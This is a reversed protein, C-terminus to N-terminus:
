KGNGVVMRLTFFSISGAEHKIKLDYIKQVYFMETSTVGCIVWGQRAKSKVCKNSWKQMSIANISEFNAFFFNMKRFNESYGLKKKANKCMLEGGFSRFVKSKNRLKHKSALILACSHLFFYNVKTSMKSFNDVFLYYILLRTSAVKYYNMINAHNSNVAWCLATPKLAGDSNKRLFQHNGLKKLIGGIPARLGVKITFRVEIIVNWEFHKTVCLSKENRSVSYIAVSLFYIPHRKFNVISIKDESFSLQLNYHLFERVKILILKAQKFSGIIGILFGSAYRIYTLICYDTSLFRSLSSIRKQTKKSQYKSKFLFDDKLNVMFEDVHHFYLNVLFFSFTGYREIGVKTQSFVSLDIYGSKILNSILELTKGCVIKKRLIFIITKHEIRSFRTSIDSKIVWKVGYFQHKIQKLVMYHNSSSRFGYSNRFSSFRFLLELVLLIARQVIKDRPLGVFFQRKEKKDSKFNYASRSASFRFKGTKILKSVKEFWYLSIGNPMKSSFSNTYLSINNEIQKHALLLTNRNSILNIINNNVKNEILFKNLCDKSQEIILTKQSFTRIGVIRRYNNGVIVAGHGCSKLALPRGSNEYVGCDIAKTRQMIKGYNFNILNSHSISITKSRRYIRFSSGGISTSKGSHFHVDILIFCDDHVLKTLRCMTIRALRTKEFRRPARLQSVYGSKSHFRETLALSMHKLNSKGM